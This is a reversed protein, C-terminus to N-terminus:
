MQQVREQEWAHVSCAGGHEGRLTSEKEKGSEQRINELRL